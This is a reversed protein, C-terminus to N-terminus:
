LGVGEDLLWILTKAMRQHWPWSRRGLIGTQEPVLSKIEGYAGKFAVYASEVLEDELGRGEELGMSLGLINLFDGESKPLVNLERMKRVFSELQSRRNDDELIELIRFHLFKERKTLQKWRRLDGFVVFRYKVTNLILQRAEILRELHVIDQSSPALEPDYVGQLEVQGDIIKLWWGKGILSVLRGDVHLPTTTEKRMSGALQRIEDLELGLCRLEVLGRDGLVEVYSDWIIDIEEPKIKLTQYLLFASPYSLGVPVTSFAQSWESKRLQGPVKKRRNREPPMQDSSENQSSTSM